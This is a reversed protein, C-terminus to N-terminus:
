KPGYTVTRTYRLWGGEPFKSNANKQLILEGKETIIIAGIDYVGSRQVTVTSDNTGCAKSIPGLTSPDITYCTKKTWSTPGMLPIRETTEFGKGVAYEMKIIFVNDTREYSDEEIVEM